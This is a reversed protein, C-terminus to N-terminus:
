VHASMDNGVLSQMTSTVATVDTLESLSFDDPIKIDFADELDFVINVVDLSDIALEEFTSHPRITEPDLPVAKAISSIVLEQVNQMDIEVPTRNVQDPFISAARM